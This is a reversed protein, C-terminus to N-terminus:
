ENEIRKIIEKVVLNIKKTNDIKRIDFYRSIKEVKEYFDNINKVGAEKKRRRIIESPAYILFCFDPKPIMKMFIKFNKNNAFVLGDYFYRDFLIKGKFGIRARLYRTWFELFQIGLWLFGRERYNDRAKINDLEEINQKYRLGSYLRM